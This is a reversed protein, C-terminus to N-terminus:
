LDQVSVPFLSALNDTQMLHFVNFRYVPGAALEPPTFPFALNGATSLRGDFGHHLLYQKTTAIVEMSRDMSTAICEGLLFVENPWREPVDVTARVGDVGYVRFHLSYDQTESECVLDRVVRQIEDLIQRHKAIFRPDASGCLLVARYGDFRAGELKVTTRAATEYIAGSVRTRRSDIAEYQAFHLNVCGEPELIEYPNAQEYLSHAAVSTPTAARHTAMSELEFGQDDLTALIPDRGGPVCCISACEIIKAMHTALGLPFGLLHPLAAYIGTDCSRGAVVVDAGSQLARCFAEIGMQAVLGTCRDVEDNTLPPMTDLPTVRGEYIAEKVVTPNIDAAISALKFHLGEENAIQAVLDLTSALHPAAGASGASGIVLPIDLRRAAQLVTRLDRKAGRLSPALRGSGLYYPGIDISGMDCGIMDPSRKLGEQFAASPIGYGLQGSASLIRLPRRITGKFAAILREAANM